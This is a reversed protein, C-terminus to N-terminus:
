PLLVGPLSPRAPTAPVPRGGRPDRWGRCGSLAPVGVAPIGPLALAWSVPGSTGTHAAAALGGSHGREWSGELGRRVEELSEGLGAPSM